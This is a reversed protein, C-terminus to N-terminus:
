ERAAKDALFAGGVLLLLGLFFGVGMLWMLSLDDGQLLMLGALPILLAAAALLGISGM